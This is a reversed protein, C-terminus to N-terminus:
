PAKPNTAAEATFAMKGGTERFTGLRTGLGGAPPQALRELGECTRTEVAALRGDFKLIFTDPRYQWLEVPTSASVTGLAHRRMCGPMRAVVLSLEVTKDWFKPQERILTLAQDAGSEYATRDDVCGGLLLIALGPFMWRASRM